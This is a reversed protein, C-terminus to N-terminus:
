PRSRVLSEVTSTERVYAALETSVYQRYHHLWGVVTNAVETCVPEHHFRLVPSQPIRRPRRSRAVGQAAPFSTTSIRSGSLATTDPAQSFFGCVSTFEAM